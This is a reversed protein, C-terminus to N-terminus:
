EVESTDKPVASLAPGITYKFGQRELLTAIAKASSPNCWVIPKSPHMIAFRPRPILRLWGLIKALRSVNPDYQPCKKSTLIRYPQLTTTEM